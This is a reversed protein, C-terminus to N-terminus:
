FYNKHRQKRFCRILVRTLCKQRHVWNLYQARCLLRAKMNGAGSRFCSPGTFIHRSLSSFSVQRKTQDLVGTLRNHLM